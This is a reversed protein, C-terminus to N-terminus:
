RPLLREIMSEAKDLAKSLVKQKGTATRLSADLLSICAKMDGQSCSKGQNVLRVVKKAGAITTPFIRKHAM